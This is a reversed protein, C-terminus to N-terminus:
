TNNNITKFNYVKVLESNQILFLVKSRSVYGVESKFILSLDDNTLLIKYSKVQTKKHKNYDHYMIIFGNQHILITEKTEPSKKPIYIPNERVIQKIKNRLPEDLGFLDDPTYTVM